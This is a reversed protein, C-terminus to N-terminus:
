LNEKKKVSEYRVSSAVQEDDKQVQEDDKLQQKSCFYSKTADKEKQPTTYQFQM